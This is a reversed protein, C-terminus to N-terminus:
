LVMLGIYRRFRKRKDNLRGAVPLGLERLLREVGAADLGNIDASTPPFGEILENEINYFPELQHTEHSIRSNFLRALNNNEFRSLKGLVRQEMQGMQQQIRQELQGMQQQIRQELQGMQQQIRQEMGRMQEQIQNLNDLETAATRLGNATSTMSAQIVNFDPQEM